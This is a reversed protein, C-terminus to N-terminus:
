VLLQSRIDPRTLVAELVGGGISLSKDSVLRCYRPDDRPDVDGIKDGLRVAVGPHILGRLVGPFPAKVLKDSVRAIVQGAEVHDCIEPFTKVRGDSPSRLVRESSKNMVAEPIGTDM